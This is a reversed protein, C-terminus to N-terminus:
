NSSFHTSLFPLFHSGHWILHLMVTLALVDLFVLLCMQSLSLVSCFTTFSPPLTRSILNCSCLLLVLPLPLAAFLPVLVHTWDPHHVASLLRHGEVFWQDAQMTLTTRRLRCCRSTVLRFFPWNKVAASALFLSSDSFSFRVVSYKTRAQIIHQM